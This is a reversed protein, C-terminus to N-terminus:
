ELSLRKKTSCACLKPDQHIALGDAVRQDIRVRDRRWLSYREMSHRRIALGPRVGDLSTRVQNVRRYGRPLANVPGNTRNTPPAGPRLM